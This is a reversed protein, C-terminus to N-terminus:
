RYLGPNHNWNNHTRIGDAVGYILCKTRLELYSLFFLSRMTLPLIVEEGDLIIKSEAM